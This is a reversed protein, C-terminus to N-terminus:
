TALNFTPLRRAGRMLQRAADIARVFRQRALLSTLRPRSRAMGAYTRWRGMVGLPLRAQEADFEWPHFYLTTVPAGDRRHGQAVAWEILFLPLLRFYGGGGAPLRMGALDLTAPPLELIAHRPGAARFPSLPARPVGYRDHWVPYISSDYTLGAEALVDLAWATERVVSFTPARFGAVAEGTAQELVDMSRRLEERFQAPTLRHLRRHDWGHSAVEHGARHIARVLAPQQRALEGLIFFTARTGHRGLEDLLWRVMPEVRGAYYARREPGHDLGAATEIRWHEEVDFSLVTQPGLEEHASGNVPLPRPSVLGAPELM